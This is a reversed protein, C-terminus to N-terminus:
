PAEERSLLRAPLVREVEALLERLTDPEDLRLGEEGERVEAPLKRLLDDLCGALSALAEDDGPLERLRRAVRGLPDDRRRLGALDVVPTTALRVKELWLAEGGLEIAVSRLDAELRERDTALAGHADSAGTLTLRAALLRGEAQQVATALVAGAADVVEDRDSCDSADVELAAWRVVDLVRPQVDAIRGDQVTIVTAGKPGTERAHRGQLNGPFVVWPERSVVERAHVHGLAWYDYGKGALVEVTTPAYRGHPPRGQLATHLLGINLLGSLREPYGAALDDTVEPTAFGQGHVAVGLREDHWSEPAAHSFETVNEPLRLDRTIRSRADHNGRVLVVSVEGEQLRAM